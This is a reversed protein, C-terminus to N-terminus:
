ARRELRPSPQRSQAAQAYARRYRDQESTEAKLGRRQPGAIVQVVVESAANRARYISKQKPKESRPTPVLVLAREQQPKRDGSTAAKGAPPVRRASSTPVPIHRSIMTM